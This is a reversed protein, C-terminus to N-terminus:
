LGVDFVSQIIYESAM